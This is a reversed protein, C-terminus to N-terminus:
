HAGGRDAAIRLSLIAHMPEDTVDPWKQDRAWRARSFLWIALNTAILPRYLAKPIFTSFAFRYQNDAM